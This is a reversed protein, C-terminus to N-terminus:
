AKLPTFLSACQTPYDCLRPHTTISTIHSTHAQHRPNQSHNPLVAAINRNALLVTAWLKPM